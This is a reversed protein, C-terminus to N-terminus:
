KKAIIKDDIKTTFEHIVRVVRLDNMIMMGHSAVGGLPTYLTFTLFRKLFIIKIHRERKSYGLHPYRFGLDNNNM